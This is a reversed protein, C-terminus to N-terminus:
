FQGKAKRRDQLPDWASRPHKQGRCARPGPSAPSFYLHGWLSSPFPRLPVASWSHQELGALEKRGEWIHHACSGPLNLAGQASPDASANGLLFLLGTFFLRLQSSHRASALATGGGLPSADRRASATVGRAPAQLISRDRGKTPAFPM